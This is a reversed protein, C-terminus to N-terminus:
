GWTVPGMGLRQGISVIAAYLVDRSNGKVRPRKQVTHDGTKRLPCTLLSGPLCYAVGSDPKSHFLHIAIANCVSLQRVCKLKPRSSTGVCFNANGRVGLAAAREPQLFSQLNQFAQVTPPRIEGESENLITEQLKSFDEEAALLPNAADVQALALWQAWQEMMVNSMVPRTPDQALEALARLWLPYLKAPLGQLQTDM